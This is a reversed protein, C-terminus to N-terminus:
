IVEHTGVSDNALWWEWSIRWLPPGLILIGVAAATAATVLVAAAAVDKAIKALPHHDPSVLDVLTEVMTNLLEFAFVMGITLGLVAWELLTLGVGIGMLVVITGAVLHIRANRQTSVVYVLGAYACQCSHWLSSARM